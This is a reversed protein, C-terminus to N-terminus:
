RNSPATSSPSAAWGSGGEGDEARGRRPRSSETWRPPHYVAPELTSGPPVIPCAHRPTVGNGLVLRAGFAPTAAEGSPLGWAYWVSQVTPQPARGDATLRHSSRHAR